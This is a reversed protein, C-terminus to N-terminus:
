IKKLDDFKEFKHYDVIVPTCEKFHIRDLELDMCGDKILSGVKCKEGILSTLYEMGSIRLIRTDLGCLRLEEKKGMYTFQLMDLHLNQLDVEMHELVSSYTIQIGKIIDNNIPVDRFVELGKM